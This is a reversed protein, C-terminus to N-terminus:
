LIKVTGKTGDVKIMQGTKIIQTAPGVNVVTPIGYERAVISGHSLLGGLDMVIGAATLFHPTWGPDTFPAVMIEGPLIKGNDSRLMVRAPGLVVGPSVPLGKLVKRDLDVTDPEFNEPDFRGRVIKPPRISLNLEYDARRRAIIERLEEPAGGLVVSEMEEISLFFIDDASAIVGRECLRKGLELLGFRLFAMCRIAESKINERLVLGDQAQKLFYNFLWRKLPNRLLRRSEATMQRRAEESEKLHAIPDVAEMGELYGRLMGLVGDDDECWRRNFVELEGRAHHGHRAMFNDWGALFQKGGVIQPARDRCERFGSVSLVLEEFPPHTHVFCALNWLDLGAEASDMGELGCCLQNANIGTCRLWKGCIRELMMFEYMGRASLGILEDSESLLDGVSHMRALIEADKLSAFESADAERVKARLGKIFLKGKRISNSYFWAIFSPIKLIAKTMTFDLDPMDEEPILVRKLDEAEGLIVGIELKRMGPARRLAATMTNLNFYARGAVQGIVPNDGFDLGLRGFISAFIKFVISEALSWTAPTVVDPLVEGTNLNSWVQRDEWSRKTPLTTIPRSQLLYIRGEEISWELDQPTRFLAAARRAEEGLRRAQSEDISARGARDEDAELQVVGGDPRVRSEWQKESISKTIIELSDADLVFLDSCTKGSVLTEGLGRVSEIIIHDRSGSVPDATFIVGSAEAAVLEQIIVGMSLGSHHIDNRERYDFAREMWASAWCNSIAEFCAPLDRIGLFTEYQGAFSQGPLDEATASSRVALPLHMSEFCAAIEGKLEETIPATSIMSRIEALITGRDQPHNELQPSLGEIRQPLGNLALHRRYAEGTVCFAAPVDFGARKLRALGFAKQGVLHEHADRIEELRLVQPSDL